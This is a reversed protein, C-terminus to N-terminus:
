PAMWRDAEEKSVWRGARAANVLDGVFIPAQKEAFYGRERMLRLIAAVAVAMVILSLVLSWIKPIALGDQLGVSLIAACFFPIPLCGAGEDGFQARFDISAFSEIDAAFKEAFAEFLKGADDGAIGLDKLLRTQSSMEDSPRAAFEHIFDRIQAFLEQESMSRFDVRPSDSEM